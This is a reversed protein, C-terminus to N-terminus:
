TSSSGTKLPNNGAISDRYHLGTLAGEDNIPDPTKEKLKALLRESAICIATVRCSLVVLFLSGVGDAPWLVLSRMFFPAQLIM